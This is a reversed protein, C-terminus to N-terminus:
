MRIHTYANQYIHTHTYTYTYIRYPHPAERLRIPLIAARRYDSIVVATDSCTYMHAYINYTCMWTCLYNCMCAHTAKAMVMCFNEFALMSSFRRYFIINSLNTGSWGGGGARAAGRALACGFYASVYEWFDTNYENWMKLTINIQYKYM